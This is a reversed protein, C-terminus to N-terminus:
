HARPVYHRGKSHIQAIQRPLEAHAEPAFVTTMPRGILEEPTYGHMTAFAPNMDALRRGGASGVVVGWDAIFFLNYWLRAEREKRAMRALTLLLWGTLLAFAGAVLALSWGGIRARKAVLLVRSADEADAMSDLSSQIRTMVREGDGSAVLSRAGGGSQLRVDDAHEFWTALLPELETVQKLQSSNNSFLIKLRSISQTVDGRRSLYPRLFRPENTVVFGRLASQFERVGRQTERIQLITEDSRHEARGLQDYNSLQWFVISGVAALILTPVLLVSFISRQQRTKM